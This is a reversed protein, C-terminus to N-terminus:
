AMPTGSFKSTKGPMASGLELPLSSFGSGYMSFHQEPLFPGYGAFYAGSVSAARAQGWVPGAAYYVPSGMAELSYPHASIKFQAVFNGAEVINKGKYGAAELKGMMEKLPTAGMGPPLDSHEYGFNDNLHVHKVFPAIKETEKVIDEKAYGYKRLMGIHSTDWTAGIMKAAIKEAESRSNGQKVAQEVFQKRSEEVLGKLSEARSFAMNPTINEISVIPANEGYKKYAHMAVNSLTEAAHKISFDEIKQFREPAPIGVLEGKANLGQEGIVSLSNIMSDYKMIKLPPPLSKIGAYEEGIKKLIHMAQEKQKPDAPLFQAAENYLGRFSADLDSYFMNGREILNVGMQEGESLDKVKIRQETLDKWRPKIANWGKEILEDASKKYVQLNSIQNLWTTNNHMDLVDDPSLHQEKPGQPSPVWRIESQVQTPKGTLRDVIVLSQEKEPSAWERAALMSAHITIPVNGKPSMEHTRDVVSKFSREAQERESESWGGEGFGAPDITPAHMTVEAGALKALRGMEKFHQAPISEFIQPSVASVEAFKMGETLRASVEALQNATQTSTSAGIRGAALKYGTFLEGYSSGYTSDMSGYGYAM